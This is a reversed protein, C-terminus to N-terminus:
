NQSLFGWRDNIEDSFSKFDKELQRVATRAHSLKSKRREDFYAFVAYSHLLNAFNFPHDVNEYNGTAMKLSLKFADPM